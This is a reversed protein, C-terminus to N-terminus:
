PLTPFIFEASEGPQLIPITGITGLVNDEITINEIPVQGINTVIYKFQATMGQPLTPGPPTPAPIFTEGGDVSVLKEIILAGVVGVYYAPDEDTVTIDEFDGTVTAINVQQGEQWTGTVDITFSEGQALTTTPITIPGLVNDTLTINELPVNGTNTVIYRFVPDTGQPINPGPPTDADFFTAGGDPSVQKEVDIAPEAVIVGVYHAPDDDTVTIDEFQGTVIALNAQQGQQWTGTVDVTFSEGPALTTTPLTIPGLVNDTLTINELPVNGANTVIYRFVPDTGQPINPGPPTDADFFTVGGDPSVQKELDIAPEAVIVGVYHAPDCDMVTIDEFDGTVTAVNVRQGQQWTGTVDVTFFEGPALTTTPITIPGLVNDMLTINELPVNGINTVIYRFVPDTGQPINPGPPTDADFFTVGGDPSVLKELNIAPGQIVVGLYHAPDEDTVTIDEFQGTVTAINVQQGEQWTGTVDVTFSEGPELTTTPITIPGLVNDTLTINELPVNGINTVIYRFVPDTGQPINPGPPTDADFFTAGGDPSVQKEVDIAPEAVIVGVYHAPDDDTVTIDEFVGTVIAFNVQQGEQWTGTVDVTFSEGPALTTTPITIPGLVNDTLTINELPVNGTNTVIYRFVPDTGQPINPGPPADADFFTVGGDPSVLKELDIAPEGLVQPCLACRTFRVNQHNVFPSIFQGCGQGNNIFLQTYNTQQARNVFSTTPFTTLYVAPDTPPGYNIDTIADGITNLDWFGVGNIVLNNANFVQDSSGSFSTFEEEPHAKVFLVSLDDPCVLGEGVMISSNSMNMNATGRIRFIVLKPNATDSNKIVWDSNNVQFDTGDFQIDIVVFGDNNIDLGAVDYILKGGAAGAISNRNVLDRPNAPDGSFFFADRPLNRIFDRWDRLDSLLNTHNFPAVWGRAPDPAAASMPVGVLSGEPFYNSNSINDAANTSTSAVGIDAFVNINSLSFRGTPSTVAVNGSWDVGRFLFKSDPLFHAQTAADWLWRNISPNTPASPDPFFVSRLNPSSPAPYPPTISPTIPSVFPDGPNGGSLTQRNAGIEQSSGITVAQGATGPRMGVILWNNIENISPTSM